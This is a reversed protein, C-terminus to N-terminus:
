NMVNRIWSVVFTATTHVTSDNSDCTHYVLFTFNDRHRLMVGHPCIPFPPLAGCLRLRMVLHFHIIV